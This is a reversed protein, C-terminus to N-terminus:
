SAVPTLGAKKFDLMEKAKVPYLYRKYNLNPLLLNSGPRVPVSPKFDKWPTIANFGHLLVGKDTEGLLFVDFFDTRHNVCKILGRGANLMRIKLLDPNHKMLHDISIDKTVQLNHKPSIHGSVSKQLVRYGKSLMHSFFAEIDQTFIAIDLDRHNRYFQNERIAMGVGGVLYVNFPLGKILDCLVRIDNLIDPRTQLTLKKNRKTIVFTLPM